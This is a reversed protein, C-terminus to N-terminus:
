DRVVRARFEAGLVSQTATTAKATARELLDIEKELNSPVRRSGDVWRDLARRTVGLANALPVKWHAGGYLAAGRRALDTPTM